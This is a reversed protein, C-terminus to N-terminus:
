YAGCVSGDQLYKSWVSYVPTGKVAEPNSTDLKEKSYSQVLSYAKMVDALEKQQAKNFKCTVAIDYGMYNISEKYICKDENIGVIKKHIKIEGQGDTKLTESQSYSKCNLLADAFREEDAMVCCPIVALFLIVILKKM